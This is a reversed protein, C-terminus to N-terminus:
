NTHIEGGLTLWRNCWHTILKEFKILIWHWDTVKYCDPKLFYGLYRPGQSIDLFFFPFINKYSEIDVESLRLHNFSYKTANIQLGLARCFYNLITNIELWEHSDNITTILIDDMFFIHLINVLISIKIGIIKGALQSSKLLISLGELVLIFLLPSHPFGHWLRRENTFFHTAEGNVLVVITASSVCGM